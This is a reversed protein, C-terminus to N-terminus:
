YTGTVTMLLSLQKNAVMASSVNTPTNIGCDSGLIYGFGTETATNVGLYFATNTGADGTPSDIEAFLKSGAPITASIPANVSGGVLDIEPVQVSANTALVAMTGNLTAGPTGTYTGVKVTVVQGGATSSCNEVQFAVATIHFDTTVGFTAPDFVRYYNNAHTFGTTQNTCAISTALKITDSSNEDLTKTMMGPPADIHSVFADLIPGSDTLKIGGDGHGTIQSPGAQACASLALLSLLLSRM